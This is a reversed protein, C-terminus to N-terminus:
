VTRLIEGLIHEAAIRRKQTEKQNDLKKPGNDDKVGTASDDLLWMIGGREKRGRVRHRMLTMWVGEVNSLGCYWEEVHTQKDKGLTAIDVEPYLMKAVLENISPEEGAKTAWTNVGGIGGGVGFKDEPGTGVSQGDRDQLYDLGGLGQARDLATEWDSPLDFPASLLRHARVFDPVFRM